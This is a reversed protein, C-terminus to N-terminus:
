GQATSNPLCVNDYFPCIGPPSQTYDVVGVVVTWCLYGSCCDASCSCGDFDRACNSTPCCVGCGSNPSNQCTFPACCDTTSTCVSQFSSCTSTPCKPEGGLASPNSLALAARLSRAPTQRAVHRCIRLSRTLVPSKLFM